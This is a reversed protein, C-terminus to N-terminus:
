VTHFSLYVSVACHQLLLQNCQTSASTSQVTHFCFYVSVASPPPLLLCQSCLTSAWTFASQVSLMTFLHFYISVPSHWEASHNWGGLVIVSLWQCCLTCACTSESQLLVCHLYLNISVACHWHQSQVKFLWWYWLTSCFHFCATVAWLLVNASFANFPSPPPVSQHQSWQTLAINLERSLKMWKTVVCCM